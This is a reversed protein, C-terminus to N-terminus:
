DVQRIVRVDPGTAFQYVKWGFFGVVILTMVFAAILKLQDTEGPSRFRAFPNWNRPTAIPSRSPARSKPARSKKAADAKSKVKRASEPLKEGTPPSGPLIASELESIREDFVASDDDDFPDIVGSDDSQSDFEDSEANKARIKEYRVERDQNDEAELFGAIDFTEWAAGTVMSPPSPKAPQKAANAAKKDQVRNQPARRSNEATAPPPSDTPIAVVEIPSPSIAVRFQVKGMRVVDADKATVWTKPELKDENLRTGSTSGLDLLKVVDDHNHILCHRRSVSRSKPRIQCEAHRGVMYFGHMLPAELGAHSGTMLILRVTM